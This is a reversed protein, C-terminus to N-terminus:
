CGAKDTEFRPGALMQLLSFLNDFITSAFYKRNVYDGTLTVSMEVVGVAPSDTLIRTTTTHKM